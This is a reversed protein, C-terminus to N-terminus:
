NNSATASAGDSHNGPLARDYPEIHYQGVLNRPQGSNNPVGSRELLESDVISYRGDRAVMENADGLFRELYKGSTSDFVVAKTPM